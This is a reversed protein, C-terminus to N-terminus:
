QLDRADRMADYAGCFGDAGYSGEVYLNNLSGMCYVRVCMKKAVFLAGRLELRLVTAVSTSLLM